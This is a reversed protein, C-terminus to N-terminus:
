KFVTFFYVMIKLVLTVIFLQEHLQSNNLLIKSSNILLSDIKLYYINNILDTHISKIM